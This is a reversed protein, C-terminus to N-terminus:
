VSITVGLQLQLTNVAANPLHTENRPVDAEQIACMGDCPMTDDADM